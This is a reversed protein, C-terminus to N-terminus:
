CNNTGSGGGIIGGVWMNTFNTCNCATPLLGAYLDDTSGSPPSWVGCYNIVANGTTNIISAMRLACAGSPCITTDQFTGIVTLGVACNSSCTTDTPLRRVNIMSLGNLNVALNNSFVVPNGNFKMPSQWSGTQQYQAMQQELWLSVMYYASAITARKQYNKYMPVAVAALVAIIAVVVLLEILSFAKNMLNDM